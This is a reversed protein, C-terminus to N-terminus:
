HIQFVKVDHRPSVWAPRLQMLPELPVCAAVPHLGALRWSGGSQNVFAAGEEYTAFQRRETVQKNEDVVVAWTANAPTYAQGSYGFLRIAMTRYYDPYYLFLPRGNEYALEFFQSPNKKAWLALVELQSSMIQGAGEVTMPM